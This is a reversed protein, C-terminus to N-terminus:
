PTSRSGSGAAPRAPAGARGDDRLSALIANIFAITRQEVAGEPGPRLRAGRQYWKISFGQWDTVSRNTANFSLVVVVVIPLFLFLYVLSAQVRFWIEVARTASGIARRRRRRPCRRRVAVAQSSM